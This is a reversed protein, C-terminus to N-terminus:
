LQKEKKNKESTQQVKPIDFVFKLTKLKELANEFFLQQLENAYKEYLDMKEGKTKYFDVLNIAIDTLESYTKSNDGDAFVVEIPSNNMDRAILMKEDAENILTFNYEDVEFELPLSIKVIKFGNRMENSVFSGGISVLKEALIDIKEELM